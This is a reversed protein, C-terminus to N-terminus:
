KTQNLNNRFEIAEKKSYFGKIIEKGILESAALAFPKAAAGNTRLLTGDIDWFLKFNPSKNENM